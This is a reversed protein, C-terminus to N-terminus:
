LSGLSFRRIAAPPAQGGQFPIRIRHNGGPGTGTASVDKRYGHDHAGLNSIGTFVRGRETIGDRGPAPGSSDGDPYPRPRRLGVGPACAGIRRVVVLTADDDWGQRDGFDFVNEFVAHVIEKPSLNRNDSVINKLRAIGYQEDQPNKREIIGDSYLVLLSDPELQVYSQRINLDELFGLAIGTTELDVIRDGCVAFPPPHGANVYVLHGDEEVEGVFMSVFNTSYMAGQIVKNLKRIIHILRMELSFGMRLGIVVDRVLLAAPLGHGSADGISLIFTGDDTRLYEYFDGGIITAPVSHGNIQYGKIKPSTRPSDAPDSRGARARHDPRILRTIATRVANQFMIEERTWGDKLEFIFIWQGDPSTISIASPITYRGGSRNGIQQSLRPLDYIYSGHKLVLQVSESDLPISKLVTFGKGTSSSHILVYEDGRQEFIHTRAISLSGGFKLELEALIAEFFLEGSEQKGIKSFIL